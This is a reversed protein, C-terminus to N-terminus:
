LSKRCCRGWRACACHCEQQQREEVPHVGELGSGRRGGQRQV